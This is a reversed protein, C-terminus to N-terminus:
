NRLRPDDSAVCEVAEAAKEGALEKAAYAKPDRRRQAQEARYDSFTEPNVGKEKVLHDLSGYKQISKEGEEGAVIIRSAIKTCEDSSDFTM